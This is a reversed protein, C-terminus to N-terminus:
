IVVATIKIREMGTSEWRGTIRWHSAKEKRETVTIKTPYFRWEGSIRGGYWCCQQHFTPKAWRCFWYLFCKLKIGKYSTLCFLYNSCQRTIIYGNREVSPLNILRCFRLWVSRNWNSFNWWREWRFFLWCISNEQDDNEESCREKASSIFFLSLVRDQCIFKGESFM